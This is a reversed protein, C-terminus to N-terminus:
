DIAFFKRSNECLINRKAEESLDPHEAIFKPAGPFVSDWHPYDSGFIVKNSGLGQVAQPVTAEDADCSIWCQRRFYETPSHKLWALEDPRKEWHEDMRWLWYPLWSAGGEFFGLKLKPFRECVGGMIMSLSALMQEMTHSVTHTFMFNEYRDIGVTSSAGVMGTGEHTILPVGLRQVEAYFVDNRPDELNRDGYPNPRVMVAVHKLKEVAYRTEEAAMAPDQLPAIAVGKLRRSDNNCYDALWTNYARCLAAAFKPDEVGGLWLGQAPFLVAIDIGESDMDRMRTKANAAAGGRPNDYWSIGRTIGRGKGEPKPYLRGEIMLRNTNRNDRIVKPAIPKYKEELYKEWMGEPEVVHGDGDIIRFAM